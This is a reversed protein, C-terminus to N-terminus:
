IGDAKLIVLITKFIVKIELWLSWNKIYYLDYMLKEKADDTCSGYPYCVQAWGTIGPRVIHRENYYAIEGEYIEVLESMEPRPGILHMDGKLVNFLQALEDIRMKRMISGFGFVRADNQSTFKSGTLESGVQMSRFKYCIFPTRNLGVRKQRFIVPGPSERLIRFCAYIMVPATLIALIIAGFIDIARKILYQWLSFGRMQIITHLDGNDRPVFCKHLFEEVMEEFTIIKLPKQAVRMDTLYRILEDNIATKTNLVLIATKRELIATKLANIDSEDVMLIDNFRRNLANLERESLQYKAGLIIM